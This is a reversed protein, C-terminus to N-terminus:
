MKLNFFEITTILRQIFTGKYRKSDDSRYVTKYDEVSGYSPLWKSIEFLPEDRNEFKIVRFYYRINKDGTEKAKTLNKFNQVTIYYGSKMSPYRRIKLMASVKYTDPPIGAKKSAYELHDQLLAKIDKDKIKAMTM